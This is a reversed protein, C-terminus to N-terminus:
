PRDGQRLEAGRALQHGPAGNGAGDLTMESSDEDGYPVTSVGAPKDVVVLAPDVYVVLRGELEQVRATRPRPARMHLSLRDGARVKRGPSTVVEGGVRLKGTEVLRRAESWPVAHLARVVGDPDRRILRIDLM